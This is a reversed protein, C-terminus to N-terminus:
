EPKITIHPTVVTASGPKLHVNIVATQYSVHFVQGTDETLCLHIHFFNIHSCKLTRDRQFLVCALFWMQHSSMFNKYSFRSDVIASSILLTLPCNLSWKSKKIQIKLMEKIRVTKTQSQCPKFKNQLVEWAWKSMNLMLCCLFCGWLRNIRGAFTIWLKSHSALLTKCLLMLISIDPELSSLLETWKWILTCIRAEIKQMYVFTCFTRHPM